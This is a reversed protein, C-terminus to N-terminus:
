RIRTSIIRRSKFIYYSQNIRTSRGPGPAVTDYISNSWQCAWLRVRQQLIGVTLGWKSSVTVDRWIGLPIFPVYLISYHLPQIPCVLHLSSSSKHIGEMGEAQAHNPPQNEPDGARRVFTLRRVAFGVDDNSCAPISSRPGLVRFRSVKWQAPEVLPFICFISLDRRGPAPPPPNRGM